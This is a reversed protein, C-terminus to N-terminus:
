SKGTLHNFSSLVFANCLYKKWYWCFITSYHRAAFLLNLLILIDLWILSSICPRWTHGLMSVLLLQSSLFGFGFQIHVRMLVCAHVLEIKYIQIYLCTKANRRFSMWSLWCNLMGQRGLLKDMSSFLFRLGYSWERTFLLSKLMIVNEKQSFFKYYM